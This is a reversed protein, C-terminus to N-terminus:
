TGPHILFPVFHASVLRFKKFTHVYMWTLLLYRCIFDGKLGKIRENLCVAALGARNMNLQIFQIRSGMTLFLTNAATQGM